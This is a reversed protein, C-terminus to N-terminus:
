ETIEIDGDICHVVKIGANYNWWKEKVVSNWQAVTGEYSLEDLNEIEGSKEFNQSFINCLFFILLVSVFNKKMMM